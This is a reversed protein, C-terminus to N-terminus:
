GVGETEGLRQALTLGDFAPPAPPGWAFCGYSFDFAVAECCMFQNEAEDDNEPPRGIPPCAVCNSWADPALDGNENCPACGPVTRDWNEAACCQWDSVGGEEPICGEIIVGMDAPEAGADPEAPMEADPFPVAEADAMVPVRGDSEATMMADPVPRSTADTPVSADLEAMGPSGDTPTPEPIQLAMDRETAPVAMEGGRTVDRGMTGGNAQPEADLDGDRGMGGGPLCSVTGGAVCIGLSVGALRRGAKGTVAAAAKLARRYVEDRNM